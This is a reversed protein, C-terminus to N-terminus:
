NTELFDKLIYDRLEILKEKGDLCQLFLMLAAAVASKIAEAKSEKGRWRGGKEGVIRVFEQYLEESLEVTLIKIAM